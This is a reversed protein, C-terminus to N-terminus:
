GEEIITVSTGPAGVGFSLRILAGDPADEIQEVQVPTLKDRYADIAERREHPEIFVAMNM